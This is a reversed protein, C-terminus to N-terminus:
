SDLGLHGALNEYSEKGFPFLIGPLMIQVAFCVRCDFVLSYRITSNQYVLGLSTRCCNAHDVFCVQLMVRVAFYVRWDFVVSYRVTSNQYM